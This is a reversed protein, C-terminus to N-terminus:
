SLREGPGDAGPPLRDRGGAALRGPRPDRGPGDDARHDALPDEAAHEQRRRQPRHDRRSRGPRGRVLRGAPGLAPEAPTRAGHVGCDPAPFAGRRSGHGQRRLTSYREQASESSSLGKGASRRPDRDGPAHQNTESSTRSCGRWGSSISCEPCSSCCPLRRHEGRHLGFPPDHGGLLAWRFGEVVGAMPNLGYVWGADWDKLKAM